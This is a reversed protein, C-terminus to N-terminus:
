SLSLPLFYLCRQLLVSRYWCKSKTWVYIWLVVGLNIHLSQWEVEAHFINWETLFLSIPKMIHNMVMIFHKAGHHSNQTKHYVPGYLVWLSLCAQTNAECCTCPTFFDGYVHTLCLIMLGDFLRYAEWTTFTWLFGLSIWNTNIIAILNSLPWPHRERAM